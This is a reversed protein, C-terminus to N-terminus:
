GQNQLEAIVEVPDLGRFDDIVRDVPPFEDIKHTTTIGIVRCNAARAALVGSLSDEFVICRRSPLKLAKATKLYIEPDPKGRTVNSQDLVVDFYKWTGTKDLIFDVNERPASTAVARPINAAKLKELFEILGELPRIHPAYIERFLEEKEDGYSAIDEPDLDGFLSPIWDKNTRGFIRNRLDDETLQYGYRACFERLAVEHYPNSDVIVGDMDFVFAYPKM